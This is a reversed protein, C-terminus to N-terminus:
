EYLKALAECLKDISKVGPATELSSNLDIVACETEDASRINDASIGGALITFVGRKILTKAREWDAIRGTGGSRNGDTGDVIIGDAKTATDTGNDLVWTRYGAERIRHVVTEPYEGHLQIVQLGVQEAIGLIEEVPTDVFVGVREATGSLRGCIVAAQEPAIYRPSEPAFIFGLYDAGSSEAARAFDAETIGCVKVRTRKEGLARVIASGIVFGDAHGQTIATGQERSSIGFGAVIPIKVAARIEDLHASLEPPLEQRVGTTGNVTIVYLFGDVGEASRAVRDIPTNPAILPIVTMGHPKLVSLLEDREELPLDVALVADIGAREAEDAFTELGKSFIINYYSFLVLPTTPHRQRVRAALALVKDLSVGHKLAEYAASRIVAGDAFPDSFPVGLEIVDAGNAILRDIERESKAFSPYGITLYAVFAPRDEGRAHEFCQQIRNM